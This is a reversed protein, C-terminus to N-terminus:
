FNEDVNQAEAAQGCPTLPKNLFLKPMTFLIIFKM